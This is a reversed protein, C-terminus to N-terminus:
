WNRSSTPTALSTLRLHSDNPVLHKALVSTFGPDVFWVEPSGATRGDPTQREMALAWGSRIRAISTAHYDGMPLPSISVTQKAPDFFAWRGAGFVIVQGAGVTAEEPTFDFAALETWRPASADFRYLRNGPLYGTEAPNRKSGAVAYLRDGIPLYSVPGPLEPTPHGYAYPLQYNHVIKRRGTAADFESISRRLSYTLLRGDLFDFGALPGRIRRIEMRSRPDLVVADIYRHGTVPLDEMRYHSGPSYPPIERALDDASLEGLSADVPALKMAATWALLEGSPLAIISNLGQDMKLVSERSADRFHMEAKASAVGKRWTGYVLQGTGCHFVASMIVRDRPAVQAKVEVSRTKPSFELLEATFSGEAVVTEDCTAQIAQIPRETGCGALLLALVPIVTGGCGLFRSRM